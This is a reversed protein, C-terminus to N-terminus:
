RTARPRDALGHLGKRTSCPWRSRTSGDKRTDRSKRRLPPRGSAVRFVGNTTLRAAALAIFASPRGSRTTTSCPVGTQAARARRTWRDHRLTQTRHALLTPLSAAELFVSCLLPWHSSCHPVRGVALNTVGLQLRWM